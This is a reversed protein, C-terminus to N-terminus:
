TITALASSSFGLRAKVSNHIVDCEARMRVARPPIVHRCLKHGCGALEDRGSALAARPRRAAGRSVVALAM